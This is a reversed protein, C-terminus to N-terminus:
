KIGCSPSKAKQVIKQVYGDLEEFRAPFKALDDAKMLGRASSAKSLAEEKSMKGTGGGVGAILGLIAFPASAPDEIMDAVTLAANGVESIISAIRAIAAASGIIAMLVFTLITRILKKKKEECAKEGIDKIDKIDEMSEITTQLQFVPMAYAVVPDTDTANSVDAGYVGFSLSAYSSLLSDQLATINPMSAEIMKEPNGVKIKSDSVKRPYNVLTHTLHRCPPSVGGGPRVPMEGPDAGLSRDTTTGFSIWDKDIGTETALADYFGKEDKIIYEVTYSYFDSDWFHPM